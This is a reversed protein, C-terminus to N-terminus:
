IDRCDSCLLQGNFAVLDGTLTGCGECISQEEFGEGPNETATGAEAAMATEAEGAPRGGATPGNAALPRAALLDHETLIGLTEGADTVVLWRTGEASMRDAAEQITAGPEITPVTSRMADGVAAAEIDGDGALLTLVDRDTLIGIPDSGRLVLAADAEEALLLEVTELLGDSESAGVYERNAVERVTVDRNM